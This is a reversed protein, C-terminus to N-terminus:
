PKKSVKKLLDAQQRLTIGDIWATGEIKNDFKTSRERAIRVVAANCDAPTDFDFSVERWFNTGTIADSKKYLGKCNHGYVSIVIGNATTLSDTKIYGKLTYRSGPKVRVVQQAVAINPNYKGDFTVGLSRSGTMRVSEDIFINVGETKGIIWDFGGNLIENEFGSNWVLSTDSNSELGEVKKTIEKWVDGAEEYLKNKILFNVYAIFIDKELSGKDIARWSEQAERVRETAVLYQLYNSRYSYIDPVLSNIIYNNDLRLKWCLDYVEKQKDPMLIIYRKLADVAKDTANNMLWFTGAEWMLDPNNPSLKLARELAYEAETNRGTIQYIKSLDIWAGPQLPNSNISTIYHQIAKETDPNILDLQYYRGLMYHYTANNGDYKIASLLGKEDAKGLSLWGLLPRAILLLLIAYIIVSFVALLTGIVSVRRIVPENKRKM